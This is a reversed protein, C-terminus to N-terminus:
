PDYIKKLDDVSSKLTKALVTRDLNPENEIYWLLNQLWICADNVQHEIQNLDVSLTHLSIHSKKKM